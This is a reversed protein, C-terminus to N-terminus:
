INCFGMGGKNKSKCMWRWSVWAVQSEQDKQGWWFNRMIGELDVCLGKPLLFYSMAYTLVVQAVAM